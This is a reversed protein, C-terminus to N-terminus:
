GKSAPIRIRKANKLRCDFLSRLATLGELIDNSSARHFWLPEVLFASNSVIDEKGSTKWFCHSETLM